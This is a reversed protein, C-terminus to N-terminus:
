YSSPNESTKRLAECYWAHFEHMLTKDYALAPVAAPLATCQKFAQAVSQPLVPITHVFLGNRGSEQQLSPWFDFQNLRRNADHTQYVPLRPAKDQATRPPWYYALESGLQYYPVLLFDVQSPALQALKAVPERWYRMKKLPDQKASLWFHQPFITVLVGICYILIGTYLWRKQWISLHSIHGAFLLLLGLYAPAPWNLQVKSNFAKFLFFAVTLWATAWLMRLGPTDPRRAVMPLWLLAVLPSLALWQGGIFEGVDGWDYAAKVTGQVHGIEHHLMVWDHQANWILMPSMCAFLLLLGLWFHRQRLTARGRQTLLLGSCLWFPLLGISLKGLAGIGISLGFGYWALPNGLASSTHRSAAASHPYLARYAAWLALTWALFLPADTTMAMTPIFYAPTTLGLVVAWWGAVRSNWLDQAFYFLAFLFGSYLLWAPLRIAWEADGFLATSAAILWAVLPGKTAYSWDLHQAWLWYQAEEFHLEVKGIHLLGARLIIVALCILFLWFGDPLCKIYSLLFGQNNMKGSSKM